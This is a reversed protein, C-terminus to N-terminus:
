AKVHVVRHFMGNESVKQELMKRGKWFISIDDKVMVMAICLIVWGGNPIVVPVHRAQNVKGVANINVIHYVM